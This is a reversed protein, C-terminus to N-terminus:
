LFEDDDGIDDSLISRAKCVEAIEKTSFMKRNYFINVHNGVKKPIGELSVLGCDQCTFNTKVTTPGGVFSQLRLNGALYLFHVDNPSGELSRLRPNHTVMIMGEIKKPMGKLSTVYSNVVYMDGQVEVESLWEPLEPMYFDTFNVTGKIVKRGNKETIIRNYIDELQKLDSKM